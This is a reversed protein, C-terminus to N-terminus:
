AAKEEVNWQGMEAQALFHHTTAQQTEVAWEDTRGTQRNYVPKRAMAHRVEELANERMQDMVEINAIGHYLAFMYHNVIRQNM